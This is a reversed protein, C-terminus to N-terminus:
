SVLLMLIYLDAECVFIHIVHLLHGVGILIVQLIFCLQKQKQKELFIFSVVIRLQYINLHGSAVILSIHYLHNLCCTIEGKVAEKKENCWFGLGPNGTWLGDTCQTVSILQRDCWLQCKNTTKIIATKSQFM